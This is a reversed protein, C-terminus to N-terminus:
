VFKRCNLENFYRLMSRRFRMVNIDVVESRFLLMDKVKSSLASKRIKPAPLVETKVTSFDVDAGLSYKTATGSLKDESVFSKAASPQPLTDEVKKTSIDVFAPALREVTGTNPLITATKPSALTGTVDLATNSSKTGIETASPNTPTSSFTSQSLLCFGFWARSRNFYLLTTIYTRNM